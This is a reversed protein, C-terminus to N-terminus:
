TFPGKKIIRDVPNGDGDRYKLPISFKTDVYFIHPNETPMITLGSTNIEYFQTMKDKTNGGSRRGFITRSLDDQTMDEPGLDTFYHRGQGRPLDAGKLDKSSSQLHWDSNISASAKNGTYHYYVNEGKVPAELGAKEGPFAEPTRPRKTAGSPGPQIDLTGPRKVGQGADGRAGGLMKNQRWEGGGASQLFAVTKKTQPDIVRVYGGEVNYIPSIEYPKNVGTGDTYRVYFQDGVQYTGDGRIPRGALLSEPVSHASIDPVLRPAPAGAAMTTNALPEIVRSPPLAKLVPRMIPSATQGATAGGGGYRAYIMALRNPKNLVSVISQGPSRIVRLGAKTIRAATSIGKGIVPLLDMFMSAIEIGFMTKNYASEKAVEASSVTSVDANDILVETLQKYLTDQFNGQIPKLYADSTLENFRGIRSLNKVINGDKYDQIVAGLSDPNLPSAKSKAYARWQPQKFLAELAAQDAVQRFSMGDPADPSYLVLPGDGGNGIVVVGQLAQGLHSVTNAIINKGDVQPRTAPDPFDLLTQVWEPAPSGPPYAQPNMEGLFAQKKMVDSLNAKWATRLEGPEGTVADPAMRTKLLQVYHGGVDLKNVLAKLENTGLVVPQGDAGLLPKGSSDKLQASFTVSSYQHSEAAPWATPNKLALDTLSSRTRSVNRPVYAGPRGTHVRSQTTTTVVITDPDVNATPYKKKLEDSLQQNAFRPLSPIKELLPVLTQLSKQESADLFQYHGENMPSLKKLWQPEQKDELKEGRALMANSGDLQSSWNAANNMAREIQANNLDSTDSHTLAVLEDKQRALLQPIAEAVVDGNTPAFSLTLDEGRLPKRLNEASLPLSESLLAAPVGGKDIRHMLTAQLQAPTSFEEFGEGPTYLVVPGNGNDAMINKNGNPWHPSTARSGDTATIMFSGALRAGNPTNDDVTIPYVGPRSGDPFASERAALTPYRFAKDILAKSVSSLTGDALRLAAQNSLMQRHLNILEDQPTEPNEESQKPTTWFRSVANAFLSGIEGVAGPTSAVYEQYAKVFMEYTPQQSLLRNIKDNLAEHQRFFGKQASAPNGSDYANLTAPHISRVAPVVPTGTIPQDSYPAPNVSAPAQNKQSEEPAPSPQPLDPHYHTHRKVIM